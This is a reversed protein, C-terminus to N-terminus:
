KLLKIRVVSPLTIVNESSSVSKPFNFLRPLIVCLDTAFGSHLHVRAGRVLGCWQKLASVSYM